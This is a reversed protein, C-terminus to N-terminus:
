LLKRVATELESMRAAAALEAATRVADTLPKGGDPFQKRLEPRLEKKFGATITTRLRESFYECWSDLVEEDDAAADFDAVVILWGILAGFASSADGLRYNITSESHDVIIHSKIELESDEKLVLWGSDYIENLRSTFWESYSSWRTAGKQDQYFPRLEGYAAMVGRLGIDLDLPPDLLELKLRSITAQLHKYLERVAELQDQEAGHQGFQLLDFAHRGSDSRSCTEQELARLRDCYTAYPVFRELM